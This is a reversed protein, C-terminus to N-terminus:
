QSVYSWFDSTSHNLFFIHLTFCDIFTRQFSWPCSKLFIKVFWASSAQLESEEILLFPFVIQVLRMCCSLRTPFNQAQLSIERWFKSLMACLTLRNKFWIRYSQLIQPMQLRFQWTNSNWPWWWITWIFSSTSSRSIPPIFRIQNQIFVM